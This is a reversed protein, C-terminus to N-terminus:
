RSLSRMLGRLAEPHNRLRQRAILGAMIILTGNLSLTAALGFREALSGTVINGIPATGAFAMSYLGVARGRWGDPVSQQL